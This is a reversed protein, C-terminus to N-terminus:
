CALRVVHLHLMCNFRAGWWPIQSLRAETWDGWSAATILLSRMSNITWFDWVVVPQIHLVKSFLPSLSGVEVPALNRFWWCYRMKLCEFLYISDLWRIHLAPILEPEQMVNIVALRVRWQRDKGLEQCVCISHWISDNCEQMKLNMNWLINSTLWDRNGMGDM